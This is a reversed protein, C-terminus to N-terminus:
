DSVSVTVGRFITFKSNSVGQMKSLQKGGKPYAWLGIQNTKLGRFYPILIEDGFIWSLYANQIPGFRTTGVITASSASVKLRSVKIHRHTLGEYAIYKGDWQVQGPNGLDRGVSLVSFDSAGDPLESIANTSPGVGSVFLNAANDYGCAVSTLHSSYLAPTGQADPYIAINKDGDNVVVALNGTVPDIACGSAQGGPVSLTQSPSTAGHAYELVQYDNTIFVDGASDSCDGRVAGTLSLSGVLEGKPYSFVCVADCGGTAYILDGSSSGPLMWSKGRDADTALASTQPMAGPAGIPPQSGGCGALMAATVCSTLAYRSFDLSRMKGQEEIRSRILPWSHEAGPKLEM